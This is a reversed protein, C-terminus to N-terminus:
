KSISMKDNRKISFVNEEVSLYDKITRYEVM